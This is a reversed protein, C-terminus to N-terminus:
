DIWDPEDDIVEPALKGAYSIKITEGSYATVKGTAFMVLAMCACKTHYHYVDVGDSVFVWAPDLIAAGCMACKKPPCDIVNQERSLLDPGYMSGIQFDNM